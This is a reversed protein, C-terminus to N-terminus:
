KKGKDPNEAAAKQAEAAKKVAELQAPSLVQIIQTNFEDQLQKRYKEYVEKQAEDNGKAASFEAELAERVKKHIEISTDNLKQVLTQQDATLVVRVKNQLESRLENLTKKAAERQAETANPDSKLLKGAEKAADSGITEARAAHLKKMQEESLLLAANIGPFTRELAAPNGKMTFGLMDGSPPSPTKDKTPKDAAFVQREGFFVQHTTGQIDVQVVGTSVALALAAIIRSSMTEDGQNDWPQLEVSFKEGLATISAVPTEVRFRGDVDHVSFSGSGWLLEVVRWADDASGRIVAESEPALQVYSGDALRLAAPAPGTVRVLSNEPVHGAAVGDVMVQGSVV